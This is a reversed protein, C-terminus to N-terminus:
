QVRLRKTAIEHLTSSTNPDIVNLRVEYEGATQGPLVILISTGEFGRRPIRMRESTAIAVGRERGVTHLTANVFRAGRIDIRELKALVGIRGGPEIWEVPPRVERPPTGTVRVIEVKAEITGVSKPSREPLGEEWFHWAGAIVGGAAFLLVGTWVLRRGAPIGADHYPQSMM